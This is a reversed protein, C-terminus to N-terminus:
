RTAPGSARSGSRSRWRAPARLQLRAGPRGGFYESLRAEFAKVQPGSTIWGSRLVEAVGAITADDITPGRSPCSRSSRGPPAAAAPSPMAPPMRRPSLWDELSTASFITTRGPRWRHLVPLGPGRFAGRRGPDPRGRVGARARGVGAPVRRRRHVRRSLEDPASSSSSSSTRTTSSARRRAGTYYTFDHFFGHYHTSATAPGSSDGARRAGGDKTSRLDIIPMAFALIGVVFVLTATMAVVAGM